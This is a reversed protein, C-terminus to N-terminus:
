IYESHIKKPLLWASRLFSIASKVLYNKLNLLFSDPAIGFENVLLKINCKTYVKALM